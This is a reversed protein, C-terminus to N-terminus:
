KDEFYKAGLEDYANLHNLILEELLNGDRKKLAKMIEIHEHIYKERIKIKTLEDEDTREVAYCCQLNRVLSMIESLVKSDYHIYLLEHVDMDTEIYKMVDDSNNLADELRMLLNDIAEDPISDMSLRAVFPELRKRLQVVVEFDNKNGQAVIAKKHPQLEILGDKDLLNLAERVPATSINMSKAMENINIPEGPKLNGLIIEGRIAQYVKDRLLVVGGFNSFSSVGSKNNVM